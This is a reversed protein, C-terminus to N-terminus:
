CRPSCSSRARVLRDGAPLGQVVLLRAAPVDPALDLPLDRALGAPLHRRAAAPPDARDRIMPLLHRMSVQSWGQAWRMRQNWLASLTEPALETSVLGPDSIIVEGSQVVRMSSEIDETLISGRLRPHPAAGRRALLRELRRLHRLRAAPARGPHVVAYIQKSSSRSWGPSGPTPDGNRIVCHGQVVDAESPWGAGPVSSPGTWRTTTPTSSASSSAAARPWPPTSTRPRPSRVKSGCRARITPRSSRDRQLEDEVELRRPTNYALIVELDPYDQRLFAEVTEVVTGAENPLYAAIIASAPPPQGTPLPRHSPRRSPPHHSWWICHATIGLALVLWIYM